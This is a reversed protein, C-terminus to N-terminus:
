MCHIYCGGKEEDSESVEDSHYDSNDVIGNLVKIQDDWEMSPQLETLMPDNTDLMRQLGRRRREKKKTIFLIM